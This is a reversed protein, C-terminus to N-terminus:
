LKLKTQEGTFSVEVSKDTGMLDVIFTMPSGKFDVYDGNGKAITLESKAENYSFVLESYNGTMYDTSMEDDLYLTFEADKGGYVRIHTPEDTPQTAYQLKPGFPVISGAKVFLPTQDFAAPSIITQGGAIKENTWFDFWEGKPLYVEMERQEYETAFAAMISEGFFLQDDIAWTNKDEPYYYPLPSMMVFGENTIRWASSYIYPMLQYRLDIFKRAMAEFESGYRWIETESVYGHIRFIPSFAGFQFWRAYLEIFEKNTYQNDYIPNMSNADRFFGGADHTWYPMGAMTFNLGASIQEGFQKWTSQVDGSWTVTGYRQQGVFASRNLNMVREQPYDARKGEYMAKTVVLSYTNSVEKYKGFGVDVNDAPRGAPETGDLWISNIGFKFMSDKLMKYYRHGIEEDYFNLNNTKGLKTGLLDYTKLMPDNSIQPWVSVMINMNLDHVEKAMAAPDPYKARDWECGKTGEPWYFWDQIIIDVPVERKRLERANELLEAQTHYRERCQWFGYAKKEFMPAQGTLKHNLGVVEAPNDGALLFYDIRDGAESSFVTKNFDPENYYLNGPIPAGANQFVVKYEKGAELVKRGSFCTPVWVTAYDIVVDDDITVKIQGRMRTSNSSFALFTYEGSQEPTFTTERINAAKDIKTKSTIVNEVDPNASDEEVKALEVKQDFTIESLAQNFDTVAYNNWIIGYNNTSVLFPVAAEQNYQIMRMPVNKWNMIGSQFQGLGYLAEDGVTFAQSVVNGAIAKDSIFTREACESVLHKGSKDSYSIIGEDTVEVKLDSTSITIKDKSQRMKWDVGQPELVTTYNPIKSDPTGALVKEVHIIGNDVVEINILLSDQQITISHEDQTVPHVFQSQCSGLSLAFALLAITSKFYNKKM